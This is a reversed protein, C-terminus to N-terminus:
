PLTIFLLFLRAKQTKKAIRNVKTEPQVETDRVSISLVGSIANAAVSSAVVAGDGVDKGVEVTVIVGVKVGEAVGVNNGM